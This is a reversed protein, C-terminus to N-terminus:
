RKREHLDNVFNNNLENAIKYHVTYLICKKKQLCHVVHTSNVEKIFEFTQFSLEDVHYRVSLLDELLKAYNNSTLISKRPNGKNM